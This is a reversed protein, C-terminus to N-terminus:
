KSWRRDVEVPDFYYPSKNWESHSGDHARHSWARSNVRGRRYPAPPSTSLTSTTARAANMRQRRSNSQAM